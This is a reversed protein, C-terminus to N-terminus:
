GGLLCGSAASPFHVAHPPVRLSVPGAPPTVAAVLARARGVRRWLEQHCPELGVREAARVRSPTGVSGGWRRSGRRLVGTGMVTM